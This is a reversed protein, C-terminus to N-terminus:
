IIAIEWLSMISWPSGDLSITIGLNEWFCFDGSSNTIQVEIKYHEIKWIQIPFFVATYCFEGQLLLIVFYICIFYLKYVSIRHYRNEILLNLCPLGRFYPSVCIFVLGFFFYCVNIEELYWAAIESFVVLNFLDWFTDHVLICLWYLM